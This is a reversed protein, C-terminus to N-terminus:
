LEYGSYVMYIEWSNKRQDLAIGMAQSSFVNPLNKEIKRRLEFEFTPDFQDVKFNIRCRTERCLVSFEEATSLHADANILEMIAKENNSSEESVSEEDFAERVDDLMARLEPRMTDSHPVQAAAFSALGTCFIVSVLLVLFVKTIYSHAM